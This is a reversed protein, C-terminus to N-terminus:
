RRRKMVVLPPQYVRAYKGVDEEETAFRRWGDRQTSSHDIM